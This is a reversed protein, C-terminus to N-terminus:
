TGSSFLPVLYAPVLLLPLEAMPAVTVEGTYANLYNSAIIGANPMKRSPCCESPWRPNKRAHVPGLPFDAKGLPKASVKGTPLRRGHLRENPSEDCGTWTSLIELSLM